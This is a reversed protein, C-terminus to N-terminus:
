KRKRRAVVGLLVMGAFLMAYTGPEPVAAMVSINDLAAGYCTNRSDGAFVVTQCHRVSSSLWQAAVRMAPRSM